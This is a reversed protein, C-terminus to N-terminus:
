YLNGKGMQCALDFTAFIKIRVFVQTKRKSHTFIYFFLRIFCLPNIHRYQKEEQDKLSIM